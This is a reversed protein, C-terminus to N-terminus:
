PHVLSIDLETDHGTQPDVVVIDPRNDNNLYQHTPEKSHQFNLETLVSQGSMCSLMTHEFIVGGTKCTQRDTQRDTQGFRYM